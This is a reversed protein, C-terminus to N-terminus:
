SWYNVNSWTQLCIYILKCLFLCLAWGLMNLFNVCSRNSLIKYFFFLVVFIWWFIISPDSVNWFCILLHLSNGVFTWLLFVVVYHRIKRLAHHFIGVVPWFVRCFIGWCLSLHQLIKRLGNVALIICFDVTCFSPIVGWFYLFMAWFLGWFVEFHSGSSPSISHFPSELSTGRLSIGVSDTVFNIHLLQISRWFFFLM